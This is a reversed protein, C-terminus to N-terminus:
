LVPWNKRDLQVQFRGDAAYSSSIRNSEGKGIQQQRNM